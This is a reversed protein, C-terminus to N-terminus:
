TRRNNNAQTCLRLKPTQKQAAKAGSYACLLLSSTGQWERIEKSHSTAGDPLADFVAGGSQNISQVGCPVIKRKHSQQRQQARGDAREMLEKKNLVLRVAIEVRLVRLLGRLPKGQAGPPFSTRDRGDREEM